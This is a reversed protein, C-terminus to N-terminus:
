MVQIRVGDCFTCGSCYSSAVVDRIWKWAFHVHFNTVCKLDGVIVNRSVGIGKKNQPRALSTSVGEFAGAYKFGGASNRTVFGHYDRDGLQGFQKSWRTSRTVKFTM